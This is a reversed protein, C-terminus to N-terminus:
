EEREEREKKKMLATREFEIVVMGDQNRGVHRFRVIGQTPRSRSDRKEIVETTMYLTDGHFMPHPHVVHEYGLNAVLTGETLEPVTIGVALGLTFIGNVIRRGFESHKQAYDENLHLPQTNMTLATFLVNDMETITRALSHQILDGVTLDDFFRGPM